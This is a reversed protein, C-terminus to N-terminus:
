RIEKGIIDIIRRLTIPYIKSIYNSIEAETTITIYLIGYYYNHIVQVNSIYRAVEQTVQAVYRGGFM